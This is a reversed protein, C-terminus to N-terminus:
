LEAMSGKSQLPEHPHTRRLHPFLFGSCLSRHLDVRIGASVALASEREPEVSAAALFQLTLEQPVMFYNISRSCEFPIIFQGITGACCAMCLANDQKAGSSCLRNRM